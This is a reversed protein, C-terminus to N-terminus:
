WNVVGSKAVSIWGLQGVSNWLYGSIQSCLPTPPTSNFPWVSLHCLPPAQIFHRSPYFCGHRLVSSPRLCVAPCVTLFLLCCFFFFFAVSVIQCSASVLLRVHSALIIFLRSVLHATQFPRRLMLGYATSPEITADLFLWPRNEGSSEKQLIFCVPSLEQCM